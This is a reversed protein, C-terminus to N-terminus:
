TPGIKLGYTEEIVELVSRDSERARREIDQIISDVLFRYWFGQLVHWMLGPVGDMFGLLVFYRYAFYAAPRVFPPVRRYVHVKIWRKRRSQGDEPRNAERRGSADLRALLTDAAERVAYSAQKTTWWALPKLNEDAFDHRMTHTVGSRLLIHEDMWREECRAQGSRWIRMAMIPYQGGWKLWRGFSYQRRPLIIGSVNEPMGPLEAELEAALEASVWEDADLRFVWQGEIPLNDIAWNVQRAHNNEWAHHFVQAGLKKALEVTGDDSGSDVVLVQRAFQQASSVCREIHLRENYALILVTIDAMALTQRPALRRECAGVIAHAACRRWPTAADLALGRNRRRRGVGLM